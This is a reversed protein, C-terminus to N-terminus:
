ATPTAAVVKADAAQVAATAADVQPQVSPQQAAVLADVDTSLKAVAANLATFDAAMKRFRWALVFVFAFLLGILVYEM